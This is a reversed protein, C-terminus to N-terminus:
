PFITLITWGFLVNVHKKTAGIPGDDDNVEDEGSADLDFCNGFILADADEGSGAETPKFDMDDM